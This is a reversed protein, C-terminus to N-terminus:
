CKRRKFADLARRNSEIARKLEEPRTRYYDITPLSKLGRELTARIQDKVMEVQKCTEKQIMAQNRLATDQSRKESDQNRAYMFATAGFITISVIMVLVSLVLTAKQARLTAM